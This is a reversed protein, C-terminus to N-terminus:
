QIWHFPSEILQWLTLLYPHYYIVIHMKEEIPTTPKM